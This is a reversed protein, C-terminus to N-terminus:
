VCKNKEGERAPGIQPGTQLRNAFETASANEFLSIAQEALHRTPDLYVELIRTASELSHKTIAVIQPITCGAQALLTVATGRLDNFHLDTGELGSKAFADDWQRGFYRAKYPRGTSTTLIVAGQRKMGDLMGRLAPTCPIAVLPAVCGKRNNKGIRLRLREGDYNTWALKRIDGQRLGTHVALILARQMEVPAVKMFADIHEELWIIETRNSHYLRKFGKLHNADIRGNDVAWTLCASLVSLRYDSEREGSEVAVKARYAMFPRKVQPNNLAAVPLDGFEAELAAIKRRYEKQTSAALKSTFEPSMSYDRMLGALVATTHRERVSREAEGYIALFEPSGPEGKLRVGTERHYYYLAVRGNSLRKRVTNIGRLMVRVM